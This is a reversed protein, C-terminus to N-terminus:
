KDLFGQVVLLKELCLIEGYILIVLCVFLLYHIIRHYPSTNHTNEVQVPVVVVVDLNHVEAQGLGSGLLRDDSVLLRVECFQVECDIVIFILTM